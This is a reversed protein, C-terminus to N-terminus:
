CGKYARTDVLAQKLIGLYEELKEPIVPMEITIMVSMNKRRMKVM